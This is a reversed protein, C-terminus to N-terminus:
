SNLARTVPFLLVATVHVRVQSVTLLMTAVAQPVISAVPRYVAGAVIGETETLPVGVIAGTTVIVPVACASVVFIAVAVSVMTVPILIVSLGVAAITPVPSVNRNVAVTFLGPQLIVEFGVQSLTVHDRDVVSVPIPLMPEVDPTYVAGVDTGDGLVTIIVAVETASVDTVAVAVTEITVADCGVTVETLGFVVGNPPKNWSM